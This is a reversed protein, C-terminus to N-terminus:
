PVYEFPFATTFKMDRLAFSSSVDLFKVRNNTIDMLLKASVAAM